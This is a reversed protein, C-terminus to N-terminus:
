PLAKTTTARDSSYRGVCRRSLGTSSCTMVSGNGLTATPCNDSPDTAARWGMTLFADERQITDAQRM